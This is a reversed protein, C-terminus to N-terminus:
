VALVGDGEGLLLQCTATRGELLLLEQVTLHNRVRVSPERLRPTVEPRRPVRQLPLTESPYTSRNDNHQSVGGQCSM